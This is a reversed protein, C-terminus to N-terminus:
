INEVSLINIECGLIKNTYQFSQKVLYIGISVYLDSSFTLMHCVHIQVIIRKKTRGQTINYSIFPTTKVLLNVKIETNIVEIM